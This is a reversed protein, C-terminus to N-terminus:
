FIIVFFTRNLLKRQMDLIISHFDLWCYGQKQIQGTEGMNSLSGVLFVSRGKM